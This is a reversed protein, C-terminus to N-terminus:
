LCRLTDRPGVVWSEVACLASPAAPTVRLRLPRNEPLELVRLLRPHPSWLQEVGLKAWPQAM